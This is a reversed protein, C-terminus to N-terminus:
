DDVGYMIIIGGDPNEETEIICQAASTVPLRCFTDNNLNQSDQLNKHQFGIITWIPCNISEQIGMEFNWLNENNVEKMFVPREVYRLETPTKSLIHKSLIGQPEISPTYHPVYWHIQDIRIRPDAIGVTKDM